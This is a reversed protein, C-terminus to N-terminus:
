QGYRGGPKSWRDMWVKAEREQVEAEQVQAAAERARWYAELQAKQERFKTM